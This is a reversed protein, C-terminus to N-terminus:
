YGTTKSREKRRRDQRERQRRREEQRERQRRREERRRDGQKQKSKTSFTGEIAPVRGTQVMEGEGFVSSSKQQQDIEKELQQLEFNYETTIFDEM